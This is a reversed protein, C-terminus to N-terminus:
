QEKRQKRQVYLGLVEVFSGLAMVGGAFLIISAYGPDVGLGIRGSIHTGSQFLAATIPAVLVDGIGRTLSFIGYILVTAQADDKAVERISAAWLSTYGGALAGFAIAFVLLWAFTVSAIGWILLIAAASSMATLGGIIHPSKRDSLFGLGIRSVVAAANIAALAATGDSAPLGLASAFAPLWLAPIFYAMSNLLNALFYIWLAKNRVPFSAFGYTAHPAGTAKSLPVRNRTLPLLCALALGTFVGLSQLARELGFRDILANLVFPLILGGAATGAFVIGNAMGRKAVWWESLSAINVYYILAGGIAYSAGQTLVLQFASKAFSSIVLSSACIIAGSWSLRKRHGPFRNIYAFILPSLLYMLGSSLVGVLPLLTTAGASKAIPRDLYAALFVGYSNPTGWITAEIFFSAILYQWAGRGRDVPPLEFTISRPPYRAAESDVESRDDVSTRLPSPVISSPASVFSASDVSEVIDSTRATKATPTERSSLSSAHIPPVSHVDRACTIAM